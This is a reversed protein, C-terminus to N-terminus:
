PTGGSQDSRFRLQLRMALGLQVFGSAFAFVAVLWILTFLALPPEITLVIGLLGLVAGDAVMWWRGHDHRLRLGAIVTFVGAVLAWVAIMVMFALLTIGPYVLAIVGAALAVLATLAPWLWRGGQRAGRVALLASLITDLFCYAAFVLVLTYLTIAPWAIALLGLVIATAGRLAVVWWHRAVRANLLENDHVAGLPPQAGAGGTQGASSRGGVTTGIWGPPDSAPFSQASARDVPDEPDNPKDNGM